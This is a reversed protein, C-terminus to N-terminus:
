DLSFPFLTFFVCSTAGPLCKNLGRRIEGGVLALGFCGSISEPTPKHSFVFIEVVAYAGRSMGGRGFHYGIVM